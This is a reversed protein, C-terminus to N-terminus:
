LQFEKLCISGSEGRMERAALMLFDISKVVKRIKELLILTKSGGNNAHIVPLYSKLEAKDFGIQFLLKIQKFITSKGSEGAGRFQLHLWM